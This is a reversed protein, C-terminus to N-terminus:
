REEGPEAVVAPALLKRARAHPCSLPEGGFGAAHAQCYGHHDYSCPDPDLFDRVLATLEAVDGQTEPGPTEAALRRLVDVAEEPTVLVPYGRMGEVAAIAEALVAARDVPAPLVALVADAIEGPTADGLREAGPPYRFLGAIRERLVTQGTPPAAVPSAVATNHQHYAGSRAPQEVWEQAAGLIRDAWEHAEDAPVPTRGHPYGDLAAVVSGSGDDHQRTLIWGQTTSDPHLGWQLTHAADPCYSAPHTAPPTTM